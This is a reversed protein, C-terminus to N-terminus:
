KVVEFRSKLFSFRKYEKIYVRNETSDNKDFTYIKGVELWKSRSADICKLKM